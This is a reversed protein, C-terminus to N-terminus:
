LKLLVCCQGPPQARFWDVARGGLLVFGVGDYLAAAGLDVGAGLGPLWGFRCIQWGFPWVRYGVSSPAVARIDVDVGLGHGQRASSSVIARRAAEM